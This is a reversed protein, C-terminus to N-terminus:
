DPPRSREPVADLVAKASVFTVEAGEEEVEEEDEM